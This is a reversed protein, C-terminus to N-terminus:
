RGDRGGTETKYTKFLEMVADMEADGLLNPAGVQLAIVYQRALTEVELALMLAAKLSRGLAVMGHNALLCADRGELAELAAQSLEGSGPTAYPACRIDRGGAIAVMYHFAPIGRGLCALATAFPPHAHLVANTKPRTALLDRHLLWETSPEHKGEATGDMAMRVIDAPTCDGYGIGSPTVLFGGDVRASVNGSTGRNIGEANTALATKVIDQRLDQEPM